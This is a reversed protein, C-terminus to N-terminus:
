FAHVILVTFFQMKTIFFMSTLMFNYLYFKLSKNGIVDLSIQPVTNSPNTIPNALPPPM